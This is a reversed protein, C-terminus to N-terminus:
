FAKEVFGYGHSVIVLLRGSGVTMDVILDM